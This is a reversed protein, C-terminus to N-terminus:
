FNCTHFAIYSSRLAYYTHWAPAYCATDRQPTSTQFWRICIRFWNIRESWANFRTPLTIEKRKLPGTRYHGSRLTFLIKHRIKDTSPTKHHGVLMTGPHSIWAVEKTAVHVVIMRNKFPICIMLCIRLTASNPIMWTEHLQKIIASQSTGFYTSFWRVM